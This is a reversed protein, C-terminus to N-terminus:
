LVVCCPGQAQLPGEGSVSPLAHGLSPGGSRPTDTNSLNQCSLGERQDWVVSLPLAPAGQAVCIGRAVTVGLGSHGRCLADTSHECQESNTIFNSILTNWTCFWIKLKEQFVRFVQDSEWM